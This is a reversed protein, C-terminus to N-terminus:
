NELSRLVVDVQRLLKAVCGLLMVMQIVGLLGYIHPAFRSIYYTLSKDKMVGDRSRLDYSPAIIGCVVLVITYIVIMTILRKWLFTKPIKMNGDLMRVIDFAKIFKEYIKKNHRWLIWIPLFHAPLKLCGVTNFFVKGITRIKLSKFEDINKIIEVRICYVQIAFMVFSMTLGIKSLVVKPRKPYIVAWITLGLFKRINFLTRNFM